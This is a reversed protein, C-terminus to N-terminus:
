LLARGMARPQDGDEQRCIGIRWTGSYGSGPASAAISPLIPRNGGRTKAPSHSRSFAPRASAPAPRAKTSWPPSQASLKASKLVLAMRSVKLTSSCIATTSVKPAPVGTTFSPRM